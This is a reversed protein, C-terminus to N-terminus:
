RCRAHTAPSSRLSCCSCRPARSTPEPSPTPGRPRTPARPRRGGGLIRHYSPDYEVEDLRFGWRDHPHATPTHVNALTADRQFSSSGVLQGAEHLADHAWEAGFAGVARVLPSNLEYEDIDTRVPPQNEVYHTAAGIVRQGRAVSTM